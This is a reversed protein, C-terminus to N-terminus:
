KIGILDIFKKASGDYRFQYEKGYRKCDTKQPSAYSVLVYDRKRMRSSLDDDFMVYLNPSKREKGPAYEWTHSTRHGPMITSSEWEADGWKTKYTLTIDTKNEICSMAFRVAAESEPAVLAVASFGALAAVIIRM